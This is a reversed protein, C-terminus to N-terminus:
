KPTNEMNDMNQTLKRLPTIDMETENQTLKRSSVQGGKVHVHLTKKASDITNHFNRSNQSSPPPHYQKYPSSNPKKLPFTTIIPSNIQLNKESFQHLLKSKQLEELQNLVWGGKQNPM